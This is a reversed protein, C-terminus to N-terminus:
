VFTFNEQYDNQILRSGSISCGEKAVIFEVGDTYGHADIEVQSLSETM